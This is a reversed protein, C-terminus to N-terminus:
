DMVEVIIEAISGRFYSKMQDGVTIFDAQYDLKDYPLLAHENFQGQNQIWMKGKAPNFEVTVTRWEHADLGPITVQNNQWGGALLSNTRFRVHQAIKHVQMGRVGFLISQGREAENMLRLTIRIGSYLGLAATSRAVAGEGDFYLVTGIGPYDRLQAAGPMLQNNSYPGSSIRNLIFGDKSTHSMDWHIVRRFGDNSAASDAAFLGGAITTLGTLVVLTSLIRLFKVKFLNPELGRRNFRDPNM